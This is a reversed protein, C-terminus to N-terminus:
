SKLIRFNRKSRSGALFRFAREGAIAKASESLERAEVGATMGTARQDMSPAQVICCFIKNAQQQVDISFSCCTAELNRRSEAQLVKDARRWSPAGGKASSRSIKQHFTKVVDPVDVDHLNAMFFAVHRKSLARGILAAFDSRLLDSPITNSGNFADMIIFDYFGDTDNANSLAEPAKIRLAIDGRDIETYPGCTRELFHFADDTIINLNAPLHSPSLGLVTTAADVVLPDIEVADIDIEPFYHAQPSSISDADKAYSHNLHLCINSPSLVGCYNTESFTMSSLQWISMPSPHYYVAIKTRVLFLPLSGGGIGICLLKRRGNRSNWDGAIIDHSMCAKATPQENGAYGSSDQVIMGYLAAFLSAMSKLYEQALTEPDAVVSSDEEGKREVRMATERTAENFRLVRWEEPNGRNMVPTAEHATVEILGNYKSRASFM